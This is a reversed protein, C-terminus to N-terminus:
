KSSKVEQRDQERNLEILANAIENLKHKQLACIKRADALMTKRLGPELPSPSGPSSHGRTIKGEIIPELSDRVRCIAMAIEYADNM